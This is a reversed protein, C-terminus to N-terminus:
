STPTFTVHLEELARLVYNPAIRFDNAGEVFAVDDVRDVLARFAHIIERRALPAGLCFHTGFGFGVHQKYDPRDLDFRDADTFVDADRNASGWRMAVMSGAPITTGSVEVDRTTYRFLTQVPGELRIAEEALVPLYREPDSKLKAWQEPHEVLLKLGQSIANTTTESGGVFTDAMMEAHLEEDTLTRGWEPIVTNVLDSLLTEDPQERLREFIPQFYHQAEIEMETSWVVEDHTQMMGLRQVWADTWAKIRWIDDPNAGMQIGIVLLPLPVAMRKVWDCDGTEVAAAICDSMLDDAIEIIQPELATIRSQRFAHSFLARMEKHEPDNRGALTRGPVWGKDEYMQRTLAANPDVRGRPKVSSFVEVDRAARKVDEYRTLTWMKTRPDQWVPADERLTRYAHYPCDNTAPDFFDVEDVSDLPEIM